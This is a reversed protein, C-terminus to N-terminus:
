NDLVILDMLKQVTSSATTKDASSPNAFAVPVQDTTPTKKYVLSSQLPKDM